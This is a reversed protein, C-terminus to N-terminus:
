RRTSSSTTSWQSHWSTGGLLGLPRMGDAAPIHQGDGRSFILLLLVSGSWVASRVKM